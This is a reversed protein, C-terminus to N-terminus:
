GIKIGGNEIERLFLDLLKIANEFDEMSTVSVPSHIYRSPVSVTICRAGNGATHMFVGDNRGGTIRRRQVPIHNKEGLACIDSSLGIDFYAGGDAISVAPGSCLATSQRYAEVLPVDCCVTGELVIGVDPQILYSSTMAGRMGIEEQVSFVGYVPFDYSNKLIEILVGCGNRDDFAKSKVYRDGFDEFETTFYAYDGVSVYRKADSGSNVGIDIYADSYDSGMRIIGYVKNKGIYVSKTAAVKADVLGSNEVGLTGDENIANIIFGVEDMHACIMVKPFSKKGNKVTIISGLADYKIEDVYSSIENKIIRRVDNEDGSVGCASTLEKLLM